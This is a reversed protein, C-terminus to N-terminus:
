EGGALITFLTVNELYAIFLFRLLQELTLPSDFFIM